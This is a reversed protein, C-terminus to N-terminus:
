YGYEMAMSKLKMLNDVKFKEMIRRKLTSTTSQHIKMIESIDKVRKGKILLKFVEMERKSLESFPTNNAEASINDNYVSMLIDRSLYLHGTKILKIAQIFEKESSSKDLFGSAGLTVYELAYPKYEAQSFILIEATDQQAILAKMLKLTNMSTIGIDLLIIDFDHAQSLNLIEEHDCSSLVETDEFNKQLINQIGISVFYESNINLVNM